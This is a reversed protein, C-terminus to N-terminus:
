FDTVIQESLQGVAQSMAAVVEPIDNGVNPIRIQASPSALARGEPQKLLTWRADLVVTSDALREFREVTIRVEYDLPMESRFPPIVARRTPVLVRLNAAVTRAFDEDPASGWKHFQHVVLQNDTARTVIEKRELDAPFGVTSVGITPNAPVIASSAAPTRGQDEFTSLVYIETPPQRGLASLECASLAAISLVAAAMGLCRKTFATTM